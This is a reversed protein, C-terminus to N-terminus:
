RPNTSFLSLKEILFPIIRGRELHYRSIRQELNRTKDSSNLQSFEADSLLAYKIWMAMIKLTDYYSGEGMEDSIGTQQCLEAYSINGKQLATFIEPRIVKIVSLFSIIPPLRLQRETSAAYFLAINTYVRELQRLSLDFHKALAENGRLLADEDGWAEIEHLEMLRKNYLTIDNLPSDWSRKPLSTEINIFKQLYTHADINTGYVCKVAEELQRRHMVLIFIVNRVSFLHKIKEILEVAYNPRCRDLEDVIIILPTEGTPTLMSPIQSLTSKFSELTEIDKEHCTLREEIFDGVVGSVGTAVENQIDGLAEIDSDKIAGLTAARLGIKATWSLLQAGVNKTKDLFDKIKDEDTCNANQEIYANIASAVSIFPEDFYDNAFADIYVCPINQERLMGQWMRSFTTKGEGWRGDLSIVLEDSSRTVLNLLAEGFDKRGLADKEFAESDEVVIPPTVIHM